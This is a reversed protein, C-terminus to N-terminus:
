DVLEDILCQGLGHDIAVAAEGGQRDLVHMIAGVELAEDSGLDRRRHRDQHAFDLALSLEWQPHLDQCRGISLGEGNGMRAAGVEYPDFPKHERMDGILPQDFGTSAPQKAIASGDAGLAHEDEGVDLFFVTRM